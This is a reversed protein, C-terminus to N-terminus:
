DSRLKDLAESLAKFTDRSLDPDMMEGAVLTMSGDQAVLRGLFLPYNEIKERISQMEAPDTSVTEFAPSINLEDVSGVAMSETVLSVVRDPDINDITMM